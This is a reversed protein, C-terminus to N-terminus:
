ASALLELQEVNKPRHGPEWLAGAGNTRVMLELYRVFEMASLREGRCSCEPNATPYQGHVECEPNIELGDADFGYAVDILASVVPALSAVVPPQILGDSGRTVHKCTRTCQCRRAM